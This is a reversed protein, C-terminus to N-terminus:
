ECDGHGKLSILFFIGIITEYTIVILLDLSEDNALTPNYM